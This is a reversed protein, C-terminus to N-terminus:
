VAYREADARRLALGHGRRTLDPRASGGALEPVGDFLLSEVRVHDHFWELHRLREVACLAHVSVAPACHGSLDLGHGAVLGGAALLGSIGGCRTVDAQLCDVAEAELLNRFDAEVYAYEGAAVDLGGPGEKRVLRLGALNASSVPEEFWTVGWVSRLRHAWALAEKPGYAGNADVFLEADYLRGRVNVLEEFYRAFADHYAPDVLAGHPRRVAEFVVGLLRVVEDLETERARRIAVTM